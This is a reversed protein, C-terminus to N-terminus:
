IDRDFSNLAAIKSAFWKLSLTKYSWMICKAQEQFLVHERQYQSYRAKLQSEAWPHGEAHQHLRM